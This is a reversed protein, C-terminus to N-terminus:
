FPLAGFLFELNIHALVATPRPDVLGCVPLPCNSKKAAKAQEQNELLGIVDEIITGNLSAFPRNWRAVADRGKSKSSRSPIIQNTRIGRESFATRSFACM